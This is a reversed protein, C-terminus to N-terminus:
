DEIVRCEEPLAECEGDECWLKVMEENPTDFVTYIVKRDEDAPDTWEVTDGEHITNGECDVPLSDEFFEMLDDTDDWRENEWDFDEKVYTILNEPFGEEKMQDLVYDKFEDAYYSSNRFSDVMDSPYINDMADNFSELYGIGNYMVWTDGESYSAMFTNFIELATRGETPVLAEINDETNKYIKEYNGQEAYENYVEVLQEETLEEEMFKVALDDYFLTRM